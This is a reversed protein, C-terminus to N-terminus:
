VPDALDLFASALDLEIILFKAGTHNLDSFVDNMGPERFLIDSEKEFDSEPGAGPHPKGNLRRHWSNSRSLL